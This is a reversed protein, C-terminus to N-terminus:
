LPTVSWGDDATFHWETGDKGELLWPQTTSKIDRAVVVLPSKGKLIGEHTEGFKEIKIRKGVYAKLEDEQNPTTM